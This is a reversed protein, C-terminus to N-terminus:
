TKGYVKDLGKMNSSAGNGEVAGQNELNRGTQTKQQRGWGSM